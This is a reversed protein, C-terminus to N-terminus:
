RALLDGVAHAVAGPQQRRQGGRREEDMGRDKAPVRRGDGTGGDEGPRHDQQVKEGGEVVRQGAGRALDTNRTSSWAAIKRRIAPVYM